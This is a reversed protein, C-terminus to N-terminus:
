PRLEPLFRSCLRTICNPQCRGCAARFRPQSRAFASNPWIQSPTSSEAHPRSHAKHEQLGIRLGGAQPGFDPALAPEPDQAGSEPPLPKPKQSPTTAARRCWGQRHAWDLLSCTHGKSPAHHHLRACRAALVVSSWALTSRAQKSTAPTSAGRSSPYSPCRHHAPGPTMPSPWFKAASAAPLNRVPLTQMREGCDRASVLKAQRTLMQEISPRIERRDLISGDDTSNPSMQRNQHSKSRPPHKCVDLILGVGNKSDPGVPFKVAM